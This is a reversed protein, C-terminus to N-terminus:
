FVLKEQVVIGVFSLIEGENLEFSRNKLVPKAGVISGWDANLEEVVM